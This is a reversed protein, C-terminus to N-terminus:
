LESSFWVGGVRVGGGEGDRGLLLLVERVGDGAAPAVMILSMFITILQTFQMVLWKGPFSLFILSLFLLHLLSLVLITAHATRCFHMMCGYLFQVEVALIFLLGHV